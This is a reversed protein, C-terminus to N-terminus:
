LQEVEAKVYDRVQEVLTTLADRDEMRELITNLAHVHALNVQTM